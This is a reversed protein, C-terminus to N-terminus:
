YKVSVYQFDRNQFSNFPSGYEVVYKYCVFEFYFVMHLPTGFKTAFAKLLQSRPRVEDDSSSDDNAASEKAASHIEMEAFFAELVFAVVQKM